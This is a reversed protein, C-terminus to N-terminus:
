SEYGGESETAAEPGTRVPVFRSGAKRMRRLLRVVEGDVRYLVRFADNGKRLGIRVEWTADLCGPLPRELPKRNKTRTLAQHKLEDTARFISALFYARALSELDDGYARDPEVRFATRKQWAPGRRNAM